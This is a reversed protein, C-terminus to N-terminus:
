KKKKQLRQPPVRAEILGWHQLRALGRRVSRAPIAKIQAMEVADLLPFDGVLALISKDLAHLTLSFSALQSWMHQIPTGPKLPVLEITRESFRHRKPLREWPLYNTPHQSGGEFNALLSFWGGNIETTKWIKANPNQCSKMWLERTTIFAPLLEYEIGIIRYLLNRYDNLRDENAAVIVLVPFAAQESDFFRIDRSGEVLRALHASEARVPAKAMDFEPIVTIWHGRADKLQAIGHCAVPLDYKMTSFELEVEVDWEAVSWGWHANKLQLLFSRVLYVRDLVLILHELRAIHYRYTEVYLALSMGKNWALYELGSRTLMYLCRMPLDPQRGNILFVLKTKSLKELHWQVTRKHWGLILQLQESSLFSHDRLSELLQITRKPRPPRFETM